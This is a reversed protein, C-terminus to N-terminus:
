NNNHELKKSISDQQTSISSRKLLFLSVILLISQVITLAAWVGNLKFFFPLILVCVPLVLLAEGYALISASCTKKIAYFYSSSARSFAYLPLSIACIPLATHLLRSTEKSVGFLVPIQDRIAIIGIMVVLSTAISTYYTWRRVQKVAHQKNAGYYFSILPQSGDGVGQLLLQGVALIYSIVAYAAVATTGGYALAQWNILIITFAPIFTLAFPSIGVKIISKIIKGNLLYNSASIRGEKKLLILLGPILAIFEGILSAGAAGTVGYGLVMVFVGSLVSDIVFNSIMLVMAVWSKGQNRLLPNIGCGMVQFISGMSLVQIYRYALDFVQGEAGMLRLLPKACLLLIVTLVVSAILLLMLTNGLTKDAKDKEGAGMHNSINVAGGMGLGTGTALIVAAIPWAINVSALGIDGVAQGVFLGDVGAYIGTFLFSIMSPMVYKLFNKKM